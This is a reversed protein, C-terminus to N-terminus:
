IEIIERSSIYGSGLKTSGKDVEIFGNDKNGGDTTNVCYPTGINGAELKWKGIKMYMTGSANPVSNYINLWLNNADSASGGKQATFTAVLYDAHGTPVAWSCESNMGGGWYMNIGLQSSSKGSHSVDVDWLQLTYVQGAVMNTSLTFQYANYSAPSYNRYALRLMNENIESGSANIIGNKNISVSM